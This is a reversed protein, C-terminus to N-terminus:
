NTEKIIEENMRIEAKIQQMLKRIESDMVEHKKGTSLNLKQSIKANQKKLKEMQIMLKEINHEYKAIKKRLKLETVVEEQSESEIEIKSDSIENIIQNKLPHNKGLSTSIRKQYDDAKEKSSAYNQKLVKLDEKLKQNEIQLKSIKEENTLNQSILKQNETEMKKLKIKQHANPSQMEKIKEVYNEKLIELDNQLKEM